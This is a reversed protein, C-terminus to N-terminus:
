AINQIDMFSSLRKSACLALAAAEETKFGVTVEDRKSGRLIVPVEGFTSFHQLTARYRAVPNCRSYQDLDLRLRETDFFSLIFLGSSPHRRLNEKKSIGPYKAKLGLMAAGAFEENAFM